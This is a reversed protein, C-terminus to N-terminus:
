VPCQLSFASPVDSSSDSGLGKGSQVSSLLIGSSAQLSIKGSVRGEWGREDLFGEQNDRIQVSGESAAWSEHGSSQETWTATGPRGALDSSGRFSLGIDAREFVAEGM